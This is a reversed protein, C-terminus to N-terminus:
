GGKHKLEFKGEFFSVSIDYEAMFGQIGKLADIIIGKILSKLADGKQKSIAESIKGRIFLNYIELVYDITLDSSNLLKKNDLKVYATSFETPTSAFKDIATIIIVPNSRINFKNAIMDYDPDDLGGINVYLNNGTKNGLGRLKNEMDINPMARPYYLLYVKCDSPLDNFFVNEGVVKAGTKEEVPETLVLQYGM